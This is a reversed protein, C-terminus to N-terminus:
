GQAKGRCKPELSGIRVALGQPVHNLSSSNKHMPICGVQSFNGASAEHKGCVATILLLTDSQSRGVKLQDAKRIRLWESVLPKTRQWSTAAPKASINLGPEEVDSKQQSPFLILRLNAVNTSDLNKIIMKSPELSPGIPNALVVM